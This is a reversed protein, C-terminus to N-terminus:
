PTIPKTPYIKGEAQLEAFTPRRKSYKFSAPGAMIADHKRKLRAQRRTLPKTNKPTFPPPEAPPDPLIELGTKLDIRKM